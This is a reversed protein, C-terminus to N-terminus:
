ALPGGLRLRPLQDRELPGYFKKYEREAAAYLGGDEEYLAYSRVARWVIALHFRDPFLPTDDDAALAPARRYYEGIVTYLGNPKPGLLIANDDDRIAFDVPKNNAPPNNRQYLYRFWDYTQPWINQQTSSGDATLYIRFTDHKETIWKAFNAVTMAASLKTDTCDTIAYAEQGVVTPVSFRSRLFRWNDKQNCIDLYAAACWNVIRGLEGSQGTVASPVTTSGTAGCEQATRRCIELFNM